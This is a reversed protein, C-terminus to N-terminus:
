TPKGEWPGGALEPNAGYLMRMRVRKSKELAGAGYKCKVEGGTGVIGRGTEAGVPARGTGGGGTGGAM